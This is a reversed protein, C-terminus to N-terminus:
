RRVEACTSSCYLLSPGYETIFMFHQSPRNGCGTACVRTLQSEVFSPLVWKSQHEGAVHKAAMSICQVAARVNVLMSLPSHAFAACCKVLVDTPSTRQQWAAPDSVWSGYQAVTISGGKCQPTQSLFYCGLGHLSWASWAQPPLHLLWPANDYGDVLLAKWPLVNGQAQYEVAYPPLPM